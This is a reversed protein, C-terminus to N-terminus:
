LISINDGESVFEGMVGGSIVQGDHHETIDSGMGAGLYFFLPWRPFVLAYEQAEQWGARRMEVRDLCQPFVTLTEQKGLTAM